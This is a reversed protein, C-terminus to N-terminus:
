FLFASRVKPEKSGKQKQSIPNEKTNGEFGMDRENKLSCCNVGGCPQAFVPPRFNVLKMEKVLVETAPDKCVVLDQFAFHFM